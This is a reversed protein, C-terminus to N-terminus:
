ISSDMPRSRSESLVLGIKRDISADVSEADAKANPNWGFSPLGRPLSFPTLEPLRLLGFDEISSRMAGVPLFDLLTMEAEEPVEDLGDVETKVEEQGALTKEDEVPVEEFGEFETKVEEQDEPGLEEAVAEVDGNQARAMEVEARLRYNNSVHKEWAQRMTMDTGRTLHEMEAVQAENPVSVGVILTGTCATDLHVFDDILQGRRVIFLLPLGTLYTQSITALM